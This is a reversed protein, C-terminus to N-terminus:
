HDSRTILKTLENRTVADDTPATELPLKAVDANSEELRFEATGLKLIQGTALLSERIRTGSVFTGNTSGVDRVTIIKEELSIECHFSSVSAEPVRFDNTPNRGIRNLGPRLEMSWRRSLWSLVFRTSQVTSSVENM